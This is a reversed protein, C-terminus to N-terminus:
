DKIDLLSKRKTKPPSSDAKRNPATREKPPSPHVRPPRDNFRQEMQQRIEAPGFNWQNTLCRNIFEKENIKADPVDPIKVRIPAQKASKIIAYQKPLDSNAYSAMLPPIDGGYGLAKVMELRDAHNPTNFMVKIKCLNKVADLVVTDEFQKFYQHALTVRLGSKRKYALLDALNRNAYRGCEDVYLYYVGKWGRSKLRDLAFIIENIIS